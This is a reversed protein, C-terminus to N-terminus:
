ASPSSSRAFHAPVLRAQRNRQAADREAIRHQRGRSCESVADFELPKDIQVREAAQHHLAQRAFRHVAIGRWADPFRSAPMSFEIPRCFMPTRAKTRSFSGCNARSASPRRRWRRRSRRRLSRPLPARAPIPRPARPSRASHKRGSYSARRCRNRSRDPAAPPLPPRRSARPAAAPSRSATASHPRWRAAPARPRLLVAGIGDRQHVRKHRQGDIRACATRPQSRAEAPEGSRGNLRDRQAQHVLRRLRHLDRHDPQAADRGALVGGFEQHGAGAATSTPVAVNQSGRDGTRTACSSPRKRRSSPM